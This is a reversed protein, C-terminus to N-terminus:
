CLSGDPNCEYWQQQYRAQYTITETQPWIWVRYDKMAVKLDGHAGQEIIKRSLLEQPQYIRIKSPM